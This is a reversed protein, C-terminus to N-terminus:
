ALTFYGKREAGSFGFNGYLVSVYNSNFYLM